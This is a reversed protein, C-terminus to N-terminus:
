AALWDDPDDPDRANATPHSTAIIKLTRSPSNSPPKPMKPSISGATVKTGAKASKASIRVHKWARNDERAAKLIPKREENRIATPRTM